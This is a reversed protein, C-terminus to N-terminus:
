WSAVLVCLNFSVRFLCLFVDFLVFVCGFLVDFVSTILNFCM